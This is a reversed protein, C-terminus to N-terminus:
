NVYRPYHLKREQPIVSDTVGRVLCTERIRKVVVVRGIRREYEGLTPVLILLLTSTPHLVSDRVLRCAFGFDINLCSLGSSVRGSGLMHSGRVQSKGAKIPKSCNTLRAARPKRVGVLKMAM